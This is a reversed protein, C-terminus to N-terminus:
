FQDSVIVMPVDSQSCQENYHEVTNSTTSFPEPSHDQPIIFRISTSISSSLFIFEMATKKMMSLLCIIAYQESLPVGCVSNSSKQMRHLILHVLFDPCKALCIQKIQCHCIAGFISQQKQFMLYDVFDSVAIYM